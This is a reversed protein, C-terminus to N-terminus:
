TLLKIPEPIPLWLKLHRSLHNFNILQQQSFQTNFNYGTPQTLVLQEAVVPVAFNGFVAPNFYVKITFTTTYTLATTGKAEVDFILTDPGAAPAIKMNNFRYTIGQQSFGAFSVLIAGLM